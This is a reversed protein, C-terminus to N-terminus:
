LETQNAYNSSQTTTQNPGPGSTSWQLTWGFLGFQRTGDVPWHFFVGQTQITWWPTVFSMAALGVAVMGLVPVLWRRM